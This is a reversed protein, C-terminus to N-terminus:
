QCIGHALTSVIDTAVSIHCYWQVPVRTLTKNIVYNVKDKIEHDSVIVTVTVGAIVAIGAASGGAIVAV